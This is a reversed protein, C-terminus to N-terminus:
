PLDLRAGAQELFAEIAAAANETPTDAQLSKAPALIYGGGRGMERCLRQVEARVAEPTGFPLTSQSGLGGWFTLHEGFRRKLEYPDMAEPQVSELVDMGIEIADPILDAVNGCTHHLVVKGASHVFDYMRRVPEKLYARWREPGLLTGRQGGWDDSFLIGDVPLTGLEELLEMQHEAVRNVLQRYFEPEAASDMLVNEFGRLTWTREFLGFSFKAATFSDANEDIIKLVHERWGPPFFDSTEPWEYGDLSPVEFVPAALYHQWRDTRWTSGFRDVSFPEETIIEWYLGDDVCDIHVIHQTLAEQWVPSGYYEDLRMVIDVGQEFPLTYPIYATEQHAIQAYVMEKPNM